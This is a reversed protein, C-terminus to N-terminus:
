GADAAEAMDAAFQERQHGIGFHDWTGYLLEAGDIVSTM